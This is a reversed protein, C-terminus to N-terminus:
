FATASWGRILFPVREAIGKAEHVLSKSVACGAQSIAGEASEALVYLCPKGWDVEVTARWLHMEQLNVKSSYQRTFCLSHDIREAVAFQGCNVPIVRM